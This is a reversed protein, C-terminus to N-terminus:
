AEEIFSIGYNAGKKVVKWVGNVWPFTVLPKAHYKKVLSLFESIFMPFTRGDESQWIVRHASRWGKDFDILLMNAEFTSSVEGVISDWNPYSELSLTKQNFPAEKRDKTWQYETM